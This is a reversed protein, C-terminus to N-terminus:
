HHCHSLSTAARPRAAPFVWSVSTTFGMRDLSAQTEPLKAEEYIGGAKQGSSITHQLFEHSITEGLFELLPSINSSITEM